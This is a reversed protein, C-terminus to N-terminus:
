FRNQQKTANGYNVIMERGYIKFGSLSSRASNAETHKKFTVFCYGKSENRENVIMRCETIEGYPLCLAYIDDATVKFDLNTIVIKNQNINQSNSYFM